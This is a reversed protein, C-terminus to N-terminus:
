VQAEWVRLDTVSEFAKWGGECEVIECAWPAIERAQDITEADDRYIFLTRMPHRRKILSQSQREAPSRGAAKSEEINGRRM